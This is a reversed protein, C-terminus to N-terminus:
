GFVNESSYTMKLYKDEGGLREYVEGVPETATPLVGGQVFMFIATEPTVKLRKRVIHQFQGMSLTRPVLYKHKDINAVTTCAPDKEVIIPVRDPYKALVRGAEEIRSRFTYKKDFAFGSM